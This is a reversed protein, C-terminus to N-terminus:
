DTEFKLSNDEKGRQLHVTMQKFIRAQHKVKYQNTDTNNKDIDSAIWTFM